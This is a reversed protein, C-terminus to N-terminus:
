YQVERSFLSLGAAIFMRLNNDRDVIGGLFGFMKTSTVPELAQASSGPSTINFPFALFYVFVGSTIGLLRLLWRSPTEALEPNRIRQM